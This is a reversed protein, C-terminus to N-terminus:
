RVGEEGVGGEHFAWVPGTPWAGHWVIFFGGGVHRKHDGVVSLLTDRLEGFLGDGEEEGLAAHGFPDLFDVHDLVHPAPFESVLDVGGALDSAALASSVMLFGVVALFAHLTGFGVDVM